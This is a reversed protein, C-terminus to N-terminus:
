GNSAGGHVDIIASASDGRVRVNRAQGSVNREYLRQVANAPLHWLGGIKSGHGSRKIKQRAAAKSIKLTKAVAGASMMEDNAPAEDAAGGRLEAAMAILGRGYLELEDAIQDVPPAPTTMACGRTVHHRTTVLKSTGGMRAHTRARTLSL